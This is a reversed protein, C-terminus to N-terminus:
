TYQPLNAEPLMDKITQLLELKKEFKQKWTEEFAILMEKTM